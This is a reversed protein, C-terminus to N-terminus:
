NNAFLMDTDITSVIEDFSSNAYILGETRLEKICEITKNFDISDDGIDKAISAVTQCERNCLCLIEWYSEDTSFEIEKIMTDNYFERYYITNGLSLTQYSYLNNIYHSEIDEFVDWKKNRNTLVCDFFLKIIDDSNVYDVPLFSATSSHLQDLMGIDFAKKYYRSSKAIALTSMSHTILDNTFCFRLYNLNTISEDIDEDTEELLNCIVNLGGIRVGLLTAWKILLLNSAFTNKKDIKHLLNDSPSEYGIQILKFGALSMKQITEFNIEKTIIEAMVIETSEESRLQILLDLLLNFNILDNGILDNDLFAFKRINYNQIFFRMEEIIKYPSKTRFRYGTNLFCFRCRGWHCGRGGEISITTDAHKISYLNSNILNFYDSIDHQCEDLEPFVGKAKSTKIKGEERFVLHPINDLIIDGKTIYNSLLTLSIEGEGWLAFDYSNFNNMFAMAEDKTGFGGSIIKLDGKRKKIIDIITSSAIWQSFQVSFGAASYTEINIKDIEFEITKNFIALNEILNQKVGDYGLSHLKPNENILYYIIRDLSDGDNHNISINAFFPILKSIDQSLTDFTLNMFAKIHDRLIVNWYIVTVNYGNNELYKKLVSMSPSPSDELAPPLWNLLINKKM